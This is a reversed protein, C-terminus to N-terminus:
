TKKSLVSDIIKHYKVLNIEAVLSAETKKTAADIFLVEGTHKHSDYIDKLNLKTALDRTEDITKQSSLNFTFFSVDNNNKYHEAVKEFIPTTIECTVCKDHHIDIVYVKTKKIENILPKSLKYKKPEIEISTVKEGKLLKETAEIYRERDAVGALNVVVKKTNKDVFLVEGTHREYEFIDELSLREALEKSKALTELNTEDFVLYKIGPKKKFYDEVSHIIPDVSACIKCWDGHIHVVYFEKKPKTILSCSTTSAVLLLLLLLFVKNKIQIIKIPM